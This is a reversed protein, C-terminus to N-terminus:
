WALVPGTAWGTAPFASALASRQASSAFAPMVHRAGCQALMRALTARDPHVNWRRWTVRGQELWAAAPSGRSVHGTLVVPVGTALARPGLHQSLGSGCNAGAAVMVGRLASDRQLRAARALLRALDGAGGPRLWGDHGTLIEATARIHDCIEVEHGADLFALAMDLGRGAPPAPLLCPRAGTEALLEARQGVLDATDAGYSADLVAAAARPLPSAPFLGGEASYDGSYLLGGAGGIRIWVAGPAHGAPGTLIALGDINRLASLDGADRLAAEQALARVPATAYVPPNGVRDLWDLSGVHDAHGHSILVADVPGVGALDPRAGDDPGRGLDLLLRTGDMELLFCAPGKADFGALATLQSM